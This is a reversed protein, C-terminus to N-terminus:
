KIELNISENPLVSWVIETWCLSMAYAPKLGHVIVTETSM